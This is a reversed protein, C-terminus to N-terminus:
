RRRIMVLIVFLVIVAVAVGAILLLNDSIWSGPLETVVNYTVEDTVASNMANDYAVVRFKVQMPAPNPAIVGVYNTGDFTLPIYNTSAWDDVTFELVVSFIGSANVAESVEVAVDIYSPDLVYTTANHIFSSIVPAVTDDVTYTGQIVPNTIASTNIPMFRYWVQQGYPFAPITETYYGGSLSLLTVHSTNFNDISWDFFVQNVNIVKMSLTVTEDYEPNEPSVSLEQVVPLNWVEEVAACVNLKGYGWVGTM